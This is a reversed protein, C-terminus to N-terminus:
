RDEEHDPIGNDDKDCADFYELNDNERSDEDWSIDYEQEKEGWDEVVTRIEEYTRSHIKGDMAEHFYKEKKPNMLEKVFIYKNNKKVADELLDEDIQEIKTEKLQEADLLREEAAFLGARPEKQEEEYENSTQRYIKEEMIDRSQEHAQLLRQEGQTLDIAGHKKDIEKLFAAKRFEDLSKYKRYESETLDIPHNLTMVFQNLRRYEKEADKTFIDLQYRIRGDDYLYIYIDGWNIRIWKEDTGGVLPSEIEAFQKTYEQIEKSKNHESIDSAIANCYNFQMMLWEKLSVTKQIRFGSQCYGYEDSLWESVEDLYDYDDKDETCFQEPLIIEQPLSDFLAKDGDTDWKIDVIKYGQKEKMKDEGKTKIQYQNIIM